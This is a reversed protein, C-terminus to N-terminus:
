SLLTISKGQPLYDYTVNNTIHKPEDAQKDDEASVAQEDDDTSSTEENIVESVPSPTAMTTTPSPFSDDKTQTASGSDILTSTSVFPSPLQDGLIITESCKAKKLPRNDFDETTAPQVKQDNKQM